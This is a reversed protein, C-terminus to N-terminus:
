RREESRDEVALRAGNENDKGLHSITGTLPAVSGLKVVMEQAHAGSLGIGLIALAVVTHKMHRRWRSRNTLNLAQGVSRARTLASTNDPHQVHHRKEIRGRRDGSAHCETRPASFDAYEAWFRGTISSNCCHHALRYSRCRLLANCHHQGAASAAHIVIDHLMQRHPNRVPKARMSMCAADCLGHWITSLGSTSSSPM